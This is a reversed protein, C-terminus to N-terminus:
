VHGVYILFCGSSRSLILRFGHGHPSARGSGAVLVTCMTGLLQSYDIFVIINFLLCYVYSSASTYISSNLFNFLPFAKRVDV